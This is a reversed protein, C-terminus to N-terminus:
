KLRNIYLCINYKIYFKYLLIYIYWTLFLDVKPLKCHMGHDTDIGQHHVREQMKKVMMVGSGAAAEEREAAEAALLFVLLRFAEFSEL